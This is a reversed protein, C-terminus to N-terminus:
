RRSAARGPRFSLRVFIAGAIVIAVATAALVLPLPVAVYGLEAVGGVALVAKISTRPLSGGSV